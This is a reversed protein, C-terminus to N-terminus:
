DVGSSVQCRPLLTLRVRDGFYACCRLEGMITCQKLLVLNMAIKEIDGAAFGIVILRGNWAICKLSPRIMGVPDYVVDAGHGDTIDARSPSSRVVYESSLHYRSVM